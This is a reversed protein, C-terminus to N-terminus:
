CKVSLLDNLFQNSDDTHRQNARYENWIMKIKDIAILFGNKYSFYIWEIFFAVIAMFLGIGLLVFVGEMHRLSLKVHDIHQIPKSKEMENSWKTFLGAQSVRGIMNNLRPLLYHYPYSITSVSYSYLNNRQNFCYKNIKIAENNYSMQKRSVSIASNENNIFRSICQKYSTCVKFGELLQPYGPEDMKNNKIFEYHNISGHFELGAELAKPISDIQADYRPNTLIDILSSTYGALLNIGAFLLGALFIRIFILRPEYKVTFM